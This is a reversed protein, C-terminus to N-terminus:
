RISVTKCGFTARVGTWEQTKTKQCAEPCLRITDKEASTWSWGLRNSCDGSFGIPEEVGERYVNVLGPDRSVNAELEDWRASFDCTIATGTIVDLTSVFQSAETVPYFKETGGAAAIANMIAEFQVAQGMGMVYVPYGDDFLEKAAAIAEKDDLCVNVTGAPEGDTRSTTCTAPDLTGNCNPAGDTALLVSKKYPRLTLTKLYEHIIRLTAATPTSGCRMIKSLVTKIKEVANDVGIDVNPKDPLICNTAGAACTKMSPYLTLGWNVHDATKATVDRLASVVMKGVNGETTSGSRDLAVMMDVPVVKTKFESEKCNDGNIHAASGAGPQILPDGGSPIDVIFADSGADKAQTGTGGGTMDNIDSSNSCATGQTAAWLCAGALGSLSAYRTWRNYVGM